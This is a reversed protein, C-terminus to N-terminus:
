NRIPDQTKSAPTTALRVLYLGLLGGAIGGIVDAAIQTMFHTARLRVYEFSIMRYAPVGARLLFDLAFMVIGVPWPKPSLVAPFLTRTAAAIFAATAIHIEGPSSRRGTATVFATDVVGSVILSALIGIPVLAWRLGSDLGDLFRLLRSM